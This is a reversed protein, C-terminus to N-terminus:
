YDDRSKFFYDDNHERTKSMLYCMLYTFLIFILASGAFAASIYLITLIDMDM